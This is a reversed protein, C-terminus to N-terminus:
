VRMNGSLLTWPVLMPGMQPRCSEPPGWTPWMFKAIQTPWTELVPVAVVRHNYDGWHWYIIRLSLTVNPLYQRFHQVIDRSTMGWRRDSSHNFCNWTESFKIGGKKLLVNILKLQGKAVIIESGSAFLTLIIKRKLQYLYAVKIVKKENIHWSSSEKSVFPRSKFPM